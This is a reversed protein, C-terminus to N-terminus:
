TTEPTFHLRKNEIDEAWGRLRKVRMAESKFHAEIRDAVGRIIRPDKTMMFGYSVGVIVCGFREFMRLNLRDVLSPRGKTSRLDRPTCRLLFAFTGSDVVVSTMRPQTFYEYLKECDIEDTM